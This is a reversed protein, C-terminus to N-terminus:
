IEKILSDVFEKIIALDIIIITAIKYRERYHVILYNIQESEIILHHWMYFPKKLNITIERSKVPHKSIFLIKDMSPNNGLANMILGIVSISVDLSSLNELIGIQYLNAIEYERSIGRKDSIESVWTYLGKLGWWRLTKIPIHNFIRNVKRQNFLRGETM